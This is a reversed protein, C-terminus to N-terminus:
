APGKGEVAAFFADRDSPADVDEHLPNRQPPFEVPPHALSEVAAALSQRSSRRVSRYVLQGTHDAVSMRPAPFAVDSWAALWSWARRAPRWGPHEPHVGLVRWSKALTMTLALDVGADAARPGVEDWALDPAAAAREVDKLWLLRTAGALAAHVAVTLLTDVPDFTPVQEDGVSVPVARALMEDTPFAVSRRVGPERILDWHLDLTTGGPLGLALEGPEKSRILPWNRDVLRAGAETLADIAVRFSRRDVLVDLDFYERMDPREWVHEALVPGKMVVWPAGLGDLHHAVFALDEVTARHRALQHEYGAHLSALWEIPAGGDQLYLYVAPTVLHRGAAMMLDPITVAGLPSLGVAANRQVAAVLLTRLRGARDAAPRAREGTQRGAM